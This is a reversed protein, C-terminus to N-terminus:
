RAREGARGGGDLAVLLELRRRSPAARVALSHALLARREALAAREAKPLGNLGLAYESAKRVLRPRARLAQAARPAAPRTRQARAAVAPARSGGIGLGAIAGAVDNPLGVIPSSPARRTPPSGAIDAALREADRRRARTRTRRSTSPLAKPDVDAPDPGM